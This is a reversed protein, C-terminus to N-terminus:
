LARAVVKNDLSEAALDEFHTYQGLHMGEFGQGKNSYTSSVMEQVRSTSTPRNASDVNVVESRLKKHRTSSLRDLETKFDDLMIVDTLCKFVLSLKWYPNIGDLAGLRTGLTSALIDMVTFITALLIAAITLGLRASHLIFQLIGTAYSRRITDLLTINTFLWWPDRILIVQTLLM